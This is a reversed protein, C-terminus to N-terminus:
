IIKRPSTNRLPFPSNFLPSVVFLDVIKTHYNEIKRLKANFCNKIEDLSFWQVPPLYGFIVGNHECIKFGNKRLKNSDKEPVESIHKMQMKEFDGSAKGAGDFFARTVEFGYSDGFRFDPDEFKEFKDFQSSIFHGLVGRALHEYYNKEIEHQTKEILGSM